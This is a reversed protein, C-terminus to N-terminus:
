NIADVEIKAKNIQADIRGNVFGCKLMSPNDGGIEAELEDRIKDAVSLLNSSLKEPELLKQIDSHYKFKSRLYNASDAVHKKQFFGSNTQIIREKCRTQKFIEAVLNAKLYMGVKHGVEFKTTNAAVNKQNNILEWGGFLKKKFHCTKSGWQSDEKRFVNGNSAYENKCDWNEKDIVTCNEAAFSIEKNEDLKKGVGIVKQTNANAKYTFTAIPEKVSNCEDMLKIDITYTTQATSSGSIFLFFNIFILRNFQQFNM